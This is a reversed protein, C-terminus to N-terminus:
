GRRFIAKVAAEISLGGVYTTVILGTWTAVTPDLIPDTSGHTISGLVKDWVLIKWIYIVVPTALLPRIIRTYWVGQEAILVENASKRAAIEANIAAIAVESNSQYKAVGADTRAKIIDAVKGLLPSTLLSLVWSFM